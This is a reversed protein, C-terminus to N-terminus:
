EFLCILTSKRRNNEYSNRRKILCNKESYRSRMVGKFITFMGKREFGEWFVDLPVGPKREM